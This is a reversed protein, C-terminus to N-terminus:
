TARAICWVEIEAVGAASLIGALENVTSGTTVVDDIIAIRQHLVPQCLRFAGKVNAARDAAPLSAQTATPKHREICHLIPLGLQRQLHKALELSQNFGRLRVRSPHLPVPLLAEVGHSHATV